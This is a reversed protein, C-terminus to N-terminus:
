LKQDIDNLGFNECKNRGQKFNIKRGSGATMLSTM